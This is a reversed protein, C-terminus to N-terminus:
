LGPNSDGNGGLWPPNLAFATEVLANRHCQWHVSSWKNIVQLQQEKMFARHKQGKLHWLASIWRPHFFQVALTWSPFVEWFWPETRGCEQDVMKCVIHGVLTFSKQLLVTVSNKFILYIHNFISLNTVQKHLEHFILHLLIKSPLSTSSFYIKSV